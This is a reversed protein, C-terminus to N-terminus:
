QFCLLFTVKLENGFAIDLGSNHLIEKRENKDHPLKDIYENSFKQEVPLTLIEINIPKQTSILQKFQHKYTLLNNNIM